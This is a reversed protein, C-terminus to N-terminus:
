LIVEQEWATVRITWLTHFFQSKVCFRHGINTCQLGVTWKSLKHSTTKSDSNADFEHSCLQVVRQWHNSSQFDKSTWCGDRRRTAPDIDVCCYIGRKGSQSTGM